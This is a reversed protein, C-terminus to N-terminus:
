KKIIYRITPTIIDAEGLSGTIELKIYKTKEPLDEVFKEKILEEITKPYDEDGFEPSSLTKNNYNIYEIDVDYENKFYDVLHKITMNPGYLDLKDWVTFPKSIVKKEFSNETKPIDKIYRKGEPIYLDFHSTALNFDCNRFLHLEDTQLLTYIQLCSLGTIAATSSAIAPIINGAIEKAKLFTCNEINYNDARLNSFSLIFNIHYNEDNDKEFTIPNILKIKNQINNYNKDIKSIIFEKFNNILEKKNNNEKIIINEKEVLAKLIEVNLEENLNVIKSIIYYFSKFYLLTNKNKLDIKLVLPKEKIENEKEKLLKNINFEFYYVFVFIAFNIIINQKPNEIIYLINKYIEIILYLQSTDNIQNLLNYFQNIDEIILKIEKIYQYFLETFINKSYEICHEIKTPFNKLTCMPIQKKINFNLDNLCISKNPYYIDCNAKTGETGSDIFIKNYFTCLNDIYKRASLNDVASILINQNEIFEDDFIEKTNENVLLQYDKINMDKNIKLAERKAIYSKSNNGKIDNKHFLFQRNLNSLAINDNDTITIKGNKCSIGMLGFNKIYECGLAGAGIMFININKLKEQIEQGFIAIQDDYRCNLLNRNADSPIKEITEFFDFRLWQYIPIYKGTIKLAEQSAIGGLFSCIPNIESKSWRLVKIIYNKDFEIINKRKKIKLNDIYKEKIILYYNHSLEVIENIRELNNLEPLKNNISYYLHLGVFACHLLINTFNKKLDITIYNNNPIIFNDKLSKFIQKTPMKFEEISGSSIYKKNSKYINEIFFSINTTKLIQRPKGDNLFDLGKVGKFIIFDGKKLEFIEDEQIDIFIEYNNEKEEINFINYSLNKEGNIDYIHHNDCFDNFLYGTLGLNLTYIFYINNKRCINNIEYLEELKMIETIIIIDFKKIDEKYFGKHKTVNVYPNLTKLKDYCSDERCKINIDNENIYFNSSLDCITCINKDSISVEKPGALILNKAIEVGLGRLGIILIKLNIIKEMTDLGYTYIQRSYLDTDISEM